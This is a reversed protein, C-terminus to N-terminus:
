NRKMWKKLALLFDDFVGLKHHLVDVLITEDLEDYQHVIINRLKVAKQLEESIALPLVHHRHAIKFAQGANEPLEWKEDNALHTCIDICAQILIQIAYAVQLRLSFDEKIKSATIPKEKERERLFSLHEQIISIKKEILLQDVM